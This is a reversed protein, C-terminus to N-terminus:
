RRRLLGFAALSLVVLAVSPAPVPADAPPADASTARLIAFSDAYADGDTPLVRLELRDPAATVEVVHHIAARTASWAPQPDVFTTYLGAGGGGTVVYRTGNGKWTVNDRSVVEGGRVLHTREYSHDHGTLVLDVGGEELIAAFADYARPSSGHATNSSYPPEHFYAVIWAAEKAAALDAALWAAEDPPMTLQSFTDLAVFHVGGLDYSHWFTAAPQPFRQRFVAQEAPDVVAAEDTATGLVDGEHNGLAPVWPVSAAVPEVLDFWAKWTNPDGGAYSVDGVHLVLDPAVGEIATVAAGAERTVGMDGLAVFRVADAAAPVRLPFARGDIDYTANTGPALPPLRAEYVVSPTPGLIRVADLAVDGDPAHFTVAPTVAPDTEVWSLTYGALADADRLGLHVQEPAAAATPALLLLAVLTLRRM